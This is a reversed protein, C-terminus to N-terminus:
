PRKRAACHLTYFSSGPIGGVDGPEGRDAEDQGRNGM